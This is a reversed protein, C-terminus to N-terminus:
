PNTKIGQKSLLKCIEELAQHELTETAYDRQTALFEYTAPWDIHGDKTTGGGYSGRFKNRLKSVKVEIEEESLRESFCRNVAYRALASFSRPKPPDPPNPDKRHKWNHLGVRAKDAYHEQGMLVLAKTDLDNPMPLKTASEGTLAQMAKNLRTQQTDKGAPHADIIALALKELFPRDYTGKQFVGEYDDDSNLFDEISM